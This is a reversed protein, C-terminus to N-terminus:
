EEEAIEAVKLRRQVNNGWMRAHGHKMQLASEGLDFVRRRFEVEDTSGIDALGGIAKNNEIIIVSCGYQPDVNWARLDSSHGPVVAVDMGHEKSWRLAESTDGGIWVVVHTLRCPGSIDQVRQLLRATEPDLEKM